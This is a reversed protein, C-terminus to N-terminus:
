KRLPRIRAPEVWEDWNASYGEYHVKFKGDKAELISAQYWGGKWEVAVADGKKWEDKKCSGLALLAAVSALALWWFLIGRRKANM